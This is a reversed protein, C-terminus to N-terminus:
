ASEAEHGLQLSLKENCSLNGSLIVNITQIEPQIQLTVECFCVFCVFFYFFFLFIM